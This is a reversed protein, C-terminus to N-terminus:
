KSDRLLSWQTWPKKQHCVNPSAGDCVLLSTKVGHFQFLQITEMICAMVFKNEMTPSNTFYPGVIDFESTLDCWLFQLIYSTQQVAEPDKLLRYIVNLSPLEKHTMALGMLQHSRLNWMLQCAVKVEDFILVGDTRSEQKGAGRCQEKFLVYRAVQSEICESRAGPEHMFAGTYAQLTAKSPLQLIGFSKLADYTASSRTYVALALIECVYHNISETCTSEIGFYFINLM